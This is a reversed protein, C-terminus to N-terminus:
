PVLVLASHYQSYLVVAGKAPIKPTWSSVELSVSIFTAGDLLAKSIRDVRLSDRGLDWDTDSSAHIEDRSGKVNKM